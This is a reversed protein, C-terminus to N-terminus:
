LDIALPYLASLESLAHPYVGRLKKINIVKWFINIEDMNKSKLLLNLFNVGIQIIFILSRSAAM